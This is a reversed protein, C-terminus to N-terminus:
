GGIQYMEVKQTPREKPPITARLESYRDSRDMWIARLRDLLEKDTDGARLPGKLDTGSEAFLCTYFKGDASIRARSCQGCFPQTVSSIFGVEGSGDEFAYRDAVEGAFLKKSKVPMLPFKEHIQRRLTESSVVERLSWENRNGVDMFEIFRVVCGHQKFYSVLDLVSHDNVGKLVVVNIKIDDFGVERAAEIGELTNAVSVGRGSMKGAVEDDLSDVSVTLRTLGADRLPQAFRKLFIGNTTLALENVGDVTALMGVLKPLERRLLPEGGTLRIKNVGLEVFLGALRTIEEFSLLEERKLFRYGDGFTDSPMCYSCRLNCNDIVSIRLDTIPRGLSDRVHSSTLAQGMGVGFLAQQLSAESLM